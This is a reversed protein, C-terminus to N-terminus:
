LSSHQHKNAIEDCNTELLFYATLQKHFDRNFNLNNAKLIRILTGKKLNKMLLEKKDKGM